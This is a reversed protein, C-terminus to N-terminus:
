GAGLAFSRGAHLLRVLWVRGPTVAALPTLTAVTAPFPVSTATAQCIYRVQTTGLALVPVDHMRRAAVNLAVDPWGCGFYVRV